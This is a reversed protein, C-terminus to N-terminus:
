ESFSSASKQTTEKLKLWMSYDFKVVSQSRKVEGNADKESTSPNKRKIYPIKGDKISLGAYGDKVLFSCYFLNEITKGYGVEEDSNQLFEWFKTDGARGLLMDLREIRKTAESSLDDEQNTVESPRTANEITTSARPRRVRSKNPETSAESISLVFVPSPTFYALDLTELGIDAWAQANSTIRELLTTFYKQTSYYQLGPQLKQAQETITNMTHLLLNTDLTAERTTRVNSFLLDNQELMWAMQKFNEKTAEKLTNENFAIESYLHQYQKRLEIRDALTQSMNHMEEDHTQSDSDNRDEETNIRNPESSRSLQNM